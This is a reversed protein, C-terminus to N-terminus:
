PLWGVIAFGTWVRGSGDSRYIVGARRVRQDEAVAIFQGDPSWRPTSQAYGIETITGSRFNRVVLQSNYSSCCRYYAIRGGDPSLAPNFVSVDESVIARLGTTNPELAVVRQRGDAVDTFVLENGGPAWLFVPTAPSAIGRAQGGQAPVVTLLYQGSLATNVANPDSLFAITKGDPSWQPGVDNATGATLQRRGTGDANIVFIHYRDDGAVLQVFAIQQSNPSWAPAVLDGLALGQALIRAQGSGDRNTLVLSTTPAGNPVPRLTVIAAIQQGDPAVSVINVEAKAQAGAALQDTFPLRTQGSGDPNARYLQFNTGIFLVRPGSQELAIDRTEAALRGLLVNYPPANEPHLEFRAREFWQSEYPRGEIIETMVPSLPAGYLALSENDSVGRQGDFELGNAHWAGLLDGCVNFGTQAFFQCGPRPAQRPFTQWDRGTQRLRDDGIRGLLVDYPRQNGPHLEMRVREFWQTGYPIGDERNVEDRQETIPLGFVPLGGNQEWFERIRGSICYGTEAFCRADEQAAGPRAALALPLALVALLIAIITRRDM